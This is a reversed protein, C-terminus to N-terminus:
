FLYPSPWMQVRKLLAYEACRDIRLQLVQGGGTVTLMREIGGRSGMAQLDVSRMRMHVAGRDALLHCQRAEYVDQLGLSRLDSGKPNWNSRHIHSRLCM